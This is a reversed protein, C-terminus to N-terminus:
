TWFDLNKKKNLLMFYFHFQILIAETLFTSLDKGKPTTNVCVQVTWILQSMDGTLLSQCSPTSQGRGGAPTVEKKRKGDSSGPQWWHMKQAWTRRKGWRHAWLQQLSTPPGLPRGRRRRRAPRAPALYPRRSSWFRNQRLRVFFVPNNM